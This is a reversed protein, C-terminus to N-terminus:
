SRALRMHHDGPAIYAHGPLVRQGDSAEAVTMACLQDLRNAFSRTFGAPMHQTILIAPCDAPMPQLFERIAETGGTSAGVLILKETSNLPRKLTKVSGAGPAISRPRPRARAAARIRDAILEAYGLLGSRIGVTPKAVFDVA